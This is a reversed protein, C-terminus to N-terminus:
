TFWVPAESLQTEHADVPPRMALAQLAQAPTLTAAGQTLVQMSLPEDGGSVYQGHWSLLAILLVSAIAVPVIYIAFFQSVADLARHALSPTTKRRPLTFPKLMTVTLPGLTRGCTVRGVADMGCSVDQQCHR